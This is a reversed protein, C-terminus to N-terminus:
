KEDLIWYICFEAEVKKLKLNLQLEELIENNIDFLHRYYQSLIKIGDPSVHILAKQLLLQRIVFTVPTVKKLPM